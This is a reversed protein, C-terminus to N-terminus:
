TAMSTGSDFIYIINNTYNRVSAAYQAVEACSPARSGVTSMDRVAHFRNVEMFGGSSNLTQNVFRSWCGRTECIAGNMTSKRKGRTASTQLLSEDPVVDSM